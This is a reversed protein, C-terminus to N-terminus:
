LPLSSHANVNQDLPPLNMFLFNRYGKEYVTELAQFESTIIEKYLSPFDTINGVPFKVKTLDNIDNIGIYVVVLARSHDVPLVPEAYTAWQRIQDILPVM